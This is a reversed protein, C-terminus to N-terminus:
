CKTGQTSVHIQCTTCHKRFDTFVIGGSADTVMNVNEKFVAKAIENVVGELIRLNMGMTHAAEELTSSTGVPKLKMQTTMADRPRGCVDCCILTSVKM